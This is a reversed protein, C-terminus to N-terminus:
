ATENQKLLKIAENVVIEDGSITNLTDFTDVESLSDCITRNAERLAIFEDRYKLPMVVIINIDLNMETNASMELILGMRDIQDLNSIHEFVKGDEDNLIVDSRNSYDTVNTNDLLYNIIEDKKM